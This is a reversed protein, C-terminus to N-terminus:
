AGPPGEAVARLLELKADYTRRLSELARGAAPDREVAELAEAIAAEVVALSEDLAARTEPALERSEVLARLEDLTPEYAKEVERAAALHATPAETAPGSGDAVPARHQLFVLGGAFLAALAAALGARWRRSKLRRSRSSRREVAQRGAVPGQEDVPGGERAGRIRAEIEPWLDRPPEIERPLERARRRLAGQWRDPGRM